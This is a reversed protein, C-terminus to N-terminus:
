NLEGKRIKDFLPGYAKDSFWFQMTNEVGNSTLTAGSLADVDHAKDTVNKTVNLAVEGDAYIEKGQWSAAWNPNQIEGGLGPTETHEYYNIGKITNMDPAVAMFGYMTGWLGYGRVFVVVTELEGQADNIFYVKAVDERSGIGAKDDAKDLKTGLGAKKASAIPDYDTANKGDVSEVEELTNLNFLRTEVRQEFLEIVNTEPTLLGAADLVNRQMDLAANKQQLPKLGVASGAVIIACVLCLAIVVFLTKGLSENKNAM